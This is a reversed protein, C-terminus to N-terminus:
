IYRIEVNGLIVRGSLRLQAVNESPKTNENNYSIDGLYLDINNVVNWNRPIYLYITGIINDIFVEAGNIDTQAQDFYVELVGLYSIFHGSQLCESHLYKSSSSLAVKAYANNDDGKESSQDRQDAIYNYGLTKKSWKSFLLYFSISILIASSILLWLSIYMLNLPKSYIIYLVSLSIFFGFYELRLISHIAILVLFVTALISMIGIDHHLWTQGFLVFVTALLFFLGWFRNKNKM